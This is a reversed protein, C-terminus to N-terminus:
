TGFAAMVLFAFGAVAMVAHGAVIAGPLLRQKWQYGLNLTVGGLAALVLLALAIKALGPVGTTCAAYLVLTLAAAALFGHLMSLWAPPNVKRGFRVFTMALGGLAAIALLAVAVRLMSIADM